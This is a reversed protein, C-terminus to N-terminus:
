KERWLVVKGTIGSLAEAQKTRGMRDPIVAMKRELTTAVEICLTNKGKKLGDTLDFWFTPVIQIGLSKENLFVEVGEAADTIEIFYRGEETIEFEKQYRVFGSFEPEEEALHDPLCIEKEGEFSPYHISECLSRNWKELVVAQKSGGDAQVDPNLDSNQDSSLETSDFVIIRSKLPEIELFMDNEKTQIQLTRNEWADYEYVQRKYDGNEGCLTKLFRINGRWVQTGENVFLYVETKDEHIYRIYRIRDDPPTLMIEPIGAAELREPLEATRLVEASKKLEALSNKETERISVANGDKETKEADCYGKSCDETFIVPIHHETLELLAQVLNRTIYKMYPVIVASYEQTNIRLMGERIQTRFGTRDAFVDQPVIDYEIQRDALVHGIADMTMHEGTWDGEAHYIVAAPASHRGGSILECVRNMYNMLSGFHRYQPNHGHAYFHPPCDPDPFEKASFAHPVYHNIGRVLFHDALYKELRVGEKWGYNGFIECMSDGKKLPELAAASSGLKGLIYHYFEGNRHQFTGHNYSIEEGQPFVQGGIDDIGAMDQGALGRFYHGLSSGTRTHHNDDEILHGIYKVKHERCWAGIQESFDEKVLRTVADMYAYRVKATLEPDGNNEWLFALLKKYDSGLRNKLETELESSWPYDNPKGFADDMEYMHGNGLEPEDSFFGAITTGFDEAYHRYHPEYVEDLLIRCSARNMMNIYSRHYGQNRSLHLAYVKWVGKPINWELEDDKLYPMLDIERNETDPETKDDYNVAYLAVLRDDEFQRPEKEMIYNEAMTRVFPEPHLIEDQGIHLREGQPEYIRCCISQRCLTDPKGALGGNAYGTPFHSDDLIWVKMGRKRAEDLIIDMDRWWQEGCFDPHPRSEVCVARLNSEYIAQMYERLTEEPEGHLWLFPFIYHNQKNMLLKEIKKNMREGDGYKFYM